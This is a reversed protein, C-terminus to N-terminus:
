LGHTRRPLRGGNRTPDQRAWTNGWAEMSTYSKIGSTHNLLHHVTITREGVPYDPLFKSLDDDLLKGEEMLMLVAVATFQKTISAIEFVMEPRMPVELELNAQGFAKHYVIHGEMAVLATAGPGDAPWEAQMLADFQSELSQSLLALPLATVLLLLLTPFSKM